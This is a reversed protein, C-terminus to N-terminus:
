FKMKRGLLWGKELWEDLSGRNIKKNEKKELSYIWCTNFQSNKEGDHKGAHSRRMNEITNETHKKGSWDHPKIKGEAHLRRFTESARKKAREVFKEDNWTKSNMSRAAEANKEKRLEENTNVAYWGGSGGVTLNYTDKREVLDITVLEREYALAECDSDFFELIEKKFKEIGHKFIARTLLKGSGMYGDDIHETSHKGIYFMGNELNTIKYVYHLM